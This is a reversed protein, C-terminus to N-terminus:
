SPPYENISGRAASSYIVAYPSLPVRLETPARRTCPTSHARSGNRCCALLAHWLALVAIPLVAAVDELLFLIQPLPLEAM